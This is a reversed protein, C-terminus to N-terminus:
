ETEKLKSDFNHNSFIQRRKESTECVDSANWQEIKYVGQHYCVLAINIQALIVIEDNESVKKRLVKKKKCM